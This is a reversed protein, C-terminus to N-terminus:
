LFLNQDSLSIVSLRELPLQKSAQLAALATAVVAM